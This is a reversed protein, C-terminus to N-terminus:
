GAAGSLPTPLWGIERLVELGVAAASRDGDNRVRADARPGTAVRQASEAADASGFPREALRRGVVEPSAVVEVVALGGVASRLRDVEHDDAVSRALVLLVAGDARLRAAVRALNDVLVALLRPGTVDPGIWCLWDLDIVAYPLGAAELADGMAVAITTKGAGLPGTLLVAEPSM